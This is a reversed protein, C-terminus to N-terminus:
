CIAADVRGIRGCALVEVGSMFDAHYHAGQPASWDVNMAEVHIPLGVLFSLGSNLCWSHGLNGTQHYCRKNICMCGLVIAQQMHSVQWRNPHLLWGSKKLM